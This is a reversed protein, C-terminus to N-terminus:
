SSFAAVHGSLIPEFSLNLAVNHTQRHVLIPRGVDGDFIDGDDEWEHAPGHQHDKENGCWGCVHEHLKRSEFRRGFGEDKLTHLAALQRTNPPHHVEVLM